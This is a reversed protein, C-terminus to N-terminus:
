HQIVAQVGSERQRGVELSGLPWWNDCWNWVLHKCRGVLGPRNNVFIPTTALKPTNSSTRHDMSYQCHSTSYPATTCVGVLIKWFIPSAFMLFATTFSLYILYPDAQWALQIHWASDNQLRAPALHETAHTHTWAQGISHESGELWSALWVQHVAPNNITIAIEWHELTSWHVSHARPFQTQDLFVRTLLDHLFQWGMQSSTWVGLSHLYWRAHRCCMQISWREISLWVHGGPGSAGKRGLPHLALEASQPACAYDQIHSLYQVNCSPLGATLQPSTSSHGWLHGLCYPVQWPQYWCQNPFYVPPREPIISGPDYLIQLFQTQAGVQNSLHLLPQYSERAGRSLLSKLLLQYSGWESLIIIHLTPQSQVFLPKQFLVTHSPPAKIGIDFGEKLGKIVHEWKEWLGLSQLLLETKHADIPTFVLLPDMEPKSKVTPQETSQAEACATPM